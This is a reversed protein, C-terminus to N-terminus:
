LNSVICPLLYINSVNACRIPVNRIRASFLGQIACRETMLTFFAVWKSKLTGSEQARRARAANRRGKITSISTIVSYYSMYKPLVNGIIKGIAGNVGRVFEGLGRTHKMEDTLKLLISLLGNDFAEVVWPVGNLCPMVLSLFGLCTASTGLRGKEISVETPHLNLLGKLLRVITTVVNEALFLRIMEESTDFILGAIKVTREIHLLQDVKAELDKLKHLLVAPFQSTNSDM